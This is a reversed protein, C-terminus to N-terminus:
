RRDAHIVSRLKRDHVLELLIPSVSPLRQGPLIDHCKVRRSLSIDFSEVGPQVNSIKEPPTAMSRSEVKELFLFKHFRSM